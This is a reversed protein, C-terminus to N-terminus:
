KPPKIPPVPVDVDSPSASQPESDSPSVSPRKHPVPVDSDSPSVSPQDAQVGPEHDAPESSEPADGPTSQPVSGAPAPQQYALAVARDADPHRLGWAASILLVSPAFVQIFAKMM